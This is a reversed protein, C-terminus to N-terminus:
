EIEMSDNIPMNKNRINYHLQRHYLVLKMSIFILDNKLTKNLMINQAKGIAM